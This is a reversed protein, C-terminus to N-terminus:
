NIPEELWLGFRKNILKFLVLISILTICIINSVAIGFDDGILYGIINFLLWSIIM